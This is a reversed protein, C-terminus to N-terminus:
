CHNCKGKIDVQSENRHVKNSQLVNFIILFYNKDLFNRLKDSIMFDSFLQVEM